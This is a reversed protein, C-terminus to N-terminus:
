GKSRNDLFENWEILAYGLEMLKPGLAIMERGTHGPNKDLNLTGVVETLQGAVDAVAGRLRTPSWSGMESFIEDLRNRPRDDSM